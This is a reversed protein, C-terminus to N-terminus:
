YSWPIEGKLVLPIGCVLELVCDCYAALERNIRGLAEIYLRTQESYDGMDAGVDNTVVILDDCREGLAKVGGVVAEYPDTAEGRENFMENATLNCICELLAVGRHQLELTSLAMYREVTVFGKDARERRHRAIKEFAEDDYPRMAAIYYRMEGASVAIREAFTSKGCASGGTLLVRM